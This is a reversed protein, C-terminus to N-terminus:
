EEGEEDDDEGKIKGFAETFGTMDVRQYGEDSKAESVAYIVARIFNEEGFERYISKALVTFDAMLVPFTGNMMVKGKEVTLM